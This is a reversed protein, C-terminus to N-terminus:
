VLVPVFVSIYVCLCSTAVPFSVFGIGIIIGSQIMCAMGFIFNQPGHKPCHSSDLIVM